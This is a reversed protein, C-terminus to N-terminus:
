SASTTHAKIKRLLYQAYYVDDVDQKVIEPSDLGRRFREVLKQELKRKREQVSKTKSFYNLANITIVIDRASEARQEMSLLSVKHFEGDSLYNVYACDNFDWKRETMCAKFAIVARITQSLTMHISAVESWHLRTHAATLIERFLKKKKKFDKECVFQRMVAKFAEDDEREQPTVEFM